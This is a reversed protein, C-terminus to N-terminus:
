ISYIEKPYINPFDSSERLVGIKVHCGKPKIVEDPTRFSHRRAGCILKTIDDVMGRCAVAHIADM